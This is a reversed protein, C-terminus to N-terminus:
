LREQQGEASNAHRDARRSGVLRQALLGADRRSGGDDDCDPAIIYENAIPPDLDAMFGRGATAIAPLGTLQMMALATEAGEAILLKPLPKDYPIKCLEIFNGKVLGYSQRQPEADRKGTLDANLWVVHLAQLVGQKNRIPLVLGPDHSATGEEQEHSLYALPLTIRATEPVAKIARANLYHELLPALRVGSGKLGNWLLSRM